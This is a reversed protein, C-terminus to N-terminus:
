VILEVTWLERDEGSAPSPSPCNDCLVESSHVLKFKLTNEGNSASVRNMYASPGHLSAPSERVVMEITKKGQVQGM